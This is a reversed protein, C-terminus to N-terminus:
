NAADLLFVVHLIPFIGGFQAFEQHLDRLYSSSTGAQKLLNFVTIRACTLFLPIIYALMIDCWIMLLSCLSKLFPNRM